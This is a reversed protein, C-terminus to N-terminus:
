SLTGNGTGTFTGATANITGSVTTAITDKNQIANLIALTNAVDRQEALRDRLAQIERQDERNKIQCFQEALYANQACFKEQIINSQTLIANHLANGTREINLNTQCCCEQLKSQMNCCCSQIANIVSGQNVALQKDLSALAGQIANKDCHLTQSLQSIAMEQRTGQTGIADLLRTYNAENVVTNETALAPGMAGNRGYGGNGFGLILILFLIVLGSDGWTGDRGNRDLLALVGPDIGQKSLMGALLGSDYSEGVKESGLMKILADTDHSIDELQAHEWKQYESMGPMEM